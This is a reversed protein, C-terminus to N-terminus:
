QVVSNPSYIYYLYQQKKVIIICMQISFSGLSIHYVFIGVSGTIIQLIVRLCWATRLADNSFYIYIYIYIQLGSIVCRNGYTEDM